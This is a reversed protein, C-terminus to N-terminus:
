DVSPKARRVGESWGVEASLERAERLSASTIRLLSRTPGAGALLLEATGRRDGLKRMEDIAAQRYREAKIGNGDKAFMDALAAQTRAAGLRSEVRHAHHLAAIASARARETEGQSDYLQALRLLMRWLARPGQEASAGEGQTALDVGEELETRAMNPQGNRLYMSSLDLYLDALTDAEGAFIAVGIARRVTAIATEVDEETLSIHGAARLLQAELSSGCCYTKAEEVVGRALGLEGQVRLADSLKISITVFLIRASDSDEELLSTRAAALARQYLACAGVDDFYYVADDGARALLDAATLFHHACAHHHGLTAADAGTGRLARLAAAHLECRVNAPAAEYIVTRILDREFGVTDSDFTLFGRARLLGLTPEIEQPDLRERAVHELLARTTERGLVAAAQCVVLASQPLLELRAAVVDAFSSPASSVSGGELVFHALQAVCDPLRSACTALATRGPMDNGARKQLHDSLASLANDGLPGLDLRAVTAPWKDAFEPGNSVIARLPAGNMSETLRTLLEQSPRDFRDVDEFVLVTPQAQAAARLARLSSAQLERKRIPADLRWLDAQHGFLEAIGPLDRRSLGIARLARELESLSATRAVGLLAAVMARIPFLPRALTSPDGNAFYVCRAARNGDIARCVERLLRSKGSGPQGVLQLLNAGNSEGTIFALLKGAEARRGVFPLPFAGSSPEQELASASLGAVPEPGAPEPARPRGCEPCFRYTTQSPVGCNSCRRREAAAADRTELLRELERRFEGADAFRDAPDKALARLALEELPRSVTLDPRRISPRLPDDRLHGALIDMTSDHNAFPTFGTLLEYLIVGAAYLDSSVSPMGGSIVEPAMYEPTGWITEGDDDDRSVDVIRSVGFDVVKVLRWNDRRDEVVVNDSKLDAHVVGAAHAEQLGSLMQGMLDVIEDTRRPPDAQVLETLTRGRLYEMVLFLLGDSTQGYDIVAVTNPHNLRSAALAEDHFRRVLLPDDALEPRLIKVAVTRGLAIQDAKYVAGNAGTGVRGCLRFKDAIVRDILSDDLHAREVRDMAEVM